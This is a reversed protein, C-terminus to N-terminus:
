SSGRIKSEAILGGGFGGTVIATLLSLGQTAGEGWGSKYSIFSFAALGFVVVVTIVANTTNMKSNDTSYEKIKATVDPKTTYWWMVDVGMSL